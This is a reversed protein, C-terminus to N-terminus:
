EHFTVAQGSQIETFTAREIGVSMVIMIVMLTVIVMGFFFMIIVPMVIMGLFFVIIVPMVVMGLFFVIVMIVMPMVPKVRM